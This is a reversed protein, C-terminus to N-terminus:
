CSKLTATRLTEYTATPNRYGWIGLLYDSPRDAIYSPVKSELEFTPDDSSARLIKAVQDTADLSPYYQNGRLPELFGLVPDVGGIGFGYISQSDSRRYIVFTLFSSQRSGFMAGNSTSGKATLTRNCVTPEQTFQIFYDSSIWDSTDEGGVTDSPICSYSFTTAAMLIVALVALTRFSKSIIMLDNGVEDDIDSGKM